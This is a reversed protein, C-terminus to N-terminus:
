RRRRTLWWGLVGLGLVGAGTAVWVGITARRVYPDPLPAPAGAAIQAPTKTVREIKAPPVEAPRPPPPRRAQAAQQEMAAQAEALGDQARERESGQPNERLYRQFRYAAEQFRGLRQLSSGIALLVSPHPITNWADTFYRIATDYDAADFASQGSAYLTRALDRQTETAAEVRAQRQELSQIGLGRYSM